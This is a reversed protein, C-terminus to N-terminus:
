SLIFRQLRSKWSREASTLGIHNKDTLGRRMNCTHCIVNRFRGSKHDHDLCKRNNGYNGEILKVDCEECNKCNIYYEYLANFDDCIINRRKWNTIRRNKKGKHTAQYEKSKDKLTEKNTEYYEKITEKNTEYYKKSQEKILEKNAERWKKTYEKIQEKNEERWKKNYEKQKEKDRVM